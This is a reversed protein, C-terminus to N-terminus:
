TWCNLHEELNAQEVLYKAFGSFSQKPDILRKLERKAIKKLDPKDFHIAAHLTRIATRIASVKEARRELLDPRNLGCIKITSLSRETDDDGTPLVYVYQDGNKIEYVFLQTPDDYYPNLILPRESTLDDGEEFVRKSEDGLPFRDMKFESNCHKCAYLLNSWSIPLGGIDLIDPLRM